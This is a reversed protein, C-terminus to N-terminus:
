TAINGAVYSAVYLEVTGHCNVTMLGSAIAIYLQMCAQVFTGTYSCHWVFCRPHLFTLALCFCCNTCLYSAVYSLTNVLKNAIIHYEPSAM